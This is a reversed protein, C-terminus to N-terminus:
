AAISITESFKFLSKSLPEGTDSSPHTITREALHKSSPVEPATRPRRRYWWIFAILVGLVAIGGIVGEVIAGIPVSKNKSAKSLAVDASQSPPLTSRSVSLTFLTYSTSPAYLTSTVLSTPFPLSLLPPSSTSTSSKNGGLFSPTYLIYDLWFNKGNVVTAKLTHQGEDLTVSSYFLNRYIPQTAEASGQFIAQPLDDVQFHVVPAGHLTDPPLTGYVEVATGSFAFTLSCNLVDLISGTTTGLYESSTGAEEWHSDYLIDPDRDDLILTTANYYVQTM